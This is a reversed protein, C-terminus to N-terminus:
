RLAHKVMAVLDGGHLPKVLYGVIGLKKAEAIISDQGVGSVVIIKTKGAIARLVDMGNVEPMIIDLLVLDPQEHECMAIAEKGGRAVIVNTFGGDRLMGVILNRMSGSDDVVLIKKETIATQM